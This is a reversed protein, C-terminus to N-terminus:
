QIVDHIIDHVTSSIESVDLSRQADRFSVQTKNENIQYHVRTAILCVTSNFMTSDFHDDTVSDSISTPM